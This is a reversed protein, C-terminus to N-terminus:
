KCVFTQKSKVTEEAKAGVFDYYYAIDDPEITFSFRWLGESTAEGFHWVRNFGEVSYKANHTTGAVKITGSVGDENITAVVLVKGSESWYSGSQCKFTEANATGALLILILAAYRMDDDRIQIEASGSHM